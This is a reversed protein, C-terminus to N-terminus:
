AVASRLRLVRCLRSLRVADQCCVVLTADELGAVLSVVMKPRRRILDMSGVLDVISRPKVAIILLCNEPREECGIWNIGTLREKDYVRARSRFHPVDKYVISLQEPAIGSRILGLTISMGLDGNGVIVVNQTIM